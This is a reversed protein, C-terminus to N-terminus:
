FCTGCRWWECRVEQLGYVKFSQHYFRYFGDEAHWHSSVEELLKELEPLRAKAAITPRAVGHAGRIGSVSLNAHNAPPAARVSHRARGDHCIEDFPELPM